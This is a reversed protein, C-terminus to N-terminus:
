GEPKEVKPDGTGPPPSSDKKTPDTNAPNQPISPDTTDPNMLAGAAPRDANVPADHARPLQPNTASMPDEDRGCAFLSLALAAAIPLTLFNRNM